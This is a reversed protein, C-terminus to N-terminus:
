FASDPLLPDVPFYWLESLVLQELPGLLEELYSEIISITGSLCTYRTSATRADQGFYSSIEARIDLFRCASSFYAFSIIALNYGTGGKNEGFAFRHQAIRAFLSSLFDLSSRATGFHAAIARL